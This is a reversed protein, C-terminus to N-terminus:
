PPSSPWRPSEGQVGTWMQDCAPRSAPRARPSCGASGGQVVRPSICYPDQARLCAQARNCCIAGASQAPSHAWMQGCGKSVDAASALWSHQKRDVSSRAFRPAWETARSGALCWSLMCSSAQRTRTPQGASSVPHSAACSGAFDCSCARKTVAQASEASSWSCGTCCTALLQPACPPMECYPTSRCTKKAKPM